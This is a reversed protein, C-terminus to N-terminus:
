SKITVTALAKFAKYDRRSRISANDSHPRFPRCFMVLRRFGKSGHFM